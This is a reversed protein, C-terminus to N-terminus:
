VESPVESILMSLEDSFHIEEIKMKATFLRWGAKPRCLRTARQAPVSRVGRKAGAVRMELLAFNDGM